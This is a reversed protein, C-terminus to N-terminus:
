YYGNYELFADRGEIGTLKDVFLYLGNGSLNWGFESCRLHHRDGGSESFDVLVYQFYGGTVFLLVISHFEAGNLIPHHFALQGAYRTDYFDVTEAAVQFM